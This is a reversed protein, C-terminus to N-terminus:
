TDKGYAEKEFPNEFYADRGRLKLFLSALLYAPIFFPGWREAQKVHVREHPRTRALTQPDLGIVVHGLTMASAGGPLLTCHRLFLTVAGGSVELVGSHQCVGGRTLLAAPVFLLGVSTTPFTWLYVIVRPLKMLRSQVVPPYASVVDPYGSAPLGAISLRVVRGLEGSAPM